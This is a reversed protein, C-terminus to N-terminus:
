EMEECAYKRYDYENGLLLKKDKMSFMSAEGFAFGRILYRKPYRWATMGPFQIVVADTEVMLDLTRMAKPVPKPNPVAVSRWGTYECTYLELQGANCFGTSGLVLAGALLIKKM